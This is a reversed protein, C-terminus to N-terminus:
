RVGGVHESGIWLHSLGSARSRRVSHIVGVPVITGARHEAMFLAGWQQPSRPAPVGMKAIDDASFERGSAALSHLAATAAYRWWLQPNVAAEQAGPVPRPAVIPLVRRVDELGELPGQPAKSNDSM